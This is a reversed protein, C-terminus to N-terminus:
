IAELELHSVQEEPLEPEVSLVYQNDGFTASMLICGLGAIHATLENLKEAPSELVATRYLAM